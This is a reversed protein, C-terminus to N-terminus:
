VRGHGLDKILDLGAPKCLFPHELVHHVARDKIGERPRVLLVEDLIDAAFDPCQHGLEPSLRQDVRNRTGEPRRKENRFRGPEAIVYGDGGSGPDPCPHMWAPKLCCDMWTPRLDATHYRTWRFQEAGPRRMSSHWPYVRAERTEAPKEGIRGNVDFYEPNLSVRRQAHVQGAIVAISRFWSPPCEQKAPEM